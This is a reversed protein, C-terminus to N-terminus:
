HSIVMRQTSIFDRTEGDVTIKYIYVGTALGAASFEVTYSGATQTADVLVAIEQGLMDLVSLKVKGSEPMTYEIFTSTSFPNPRNTSLFYDTAAPETTIGFTKLTVPEIVGASPGAFESGYGIRFMSETAAIPGLAKVKLTLVVDNDALVMPKLNSWAISVNGASLNYLMGEASAVDVVDLLSSNYELNLTIAGFQDAKAIRIPLDFVQGTVVNMTGDKVLDIAPASKMSNPVNSRNADGENLTYIDFNGAASHMNPDFAWDGAPFYNVMGVARQKIWLADTSNQQGNNNVDMAKDVVADDLFSGPLQGIGKLEVALADTANAGYWPADYSATIGVDTECNVGSFTYYGMGDGEVENFSTTSQVPIGGNWLQIEVGNLPTNEDNHYYVFGDLECPGLTGTPYVKIPMEDYNCCGTCTDYVTLTIEGIGDNINYNTWLVEICETGQGSQIIGCHEATWQYLLCTQDFGPPCVNCYESVMGVEGFGPHDTSMDVINACPRHQVYFKWEETTVCQEPSTITLYLRATDCCEGFCIYVDDSGRWCEAECDWWMPATDLYSGSPGIFSWEYTYGPIPGDFCFCSWDISFNLCSEACVTMVQEDPNWCEVECAPCYPDVFGGCYNTPNNYGMLAVKEPVKKYEIYVTDYGICFGSANVWIWGYTGYHSGLCDDCICIQANPDTRDFDNYCYSYQINFDDGPCGDVPPVYNYFLWYSESKAPSCNNAVFPVANMTYCNGCISADDGAEPVPTEVFQVFVDVFSYCFYDKDPPKNIENWRVTYCGFLSVCLETNPDTDDAFTVEAGAPGSEFTWHSMDFYNPCDGLDTGFYHYKVIGAEALSICLSDCPAVLDTHEAIANPQELLDFLVSDSDTCNEAANWETWVFIYRGPAPICIHTEPDNIDRFVVDGPGCSKTWVGYMSFCYDFTADMDFCYPSFALDVCEHVDDGAEAVPQEFIFISVTDSAECHVEANGNYETFVFKYEGYPCPGCKEIVVGTVPETSNEIVVGCGPVQPQSILAWSYWNNYNVGFDGCFDSGVGTLTFAFENCLKQDPGASVDTPEEFIWVSVTDSDECVMHFVQEDDYYGNQQTVVFIYQGYKCADPETSCNTIFVLPDIIHIDSFLVECQDPQQYVSWTISYAADRECPLDIAGDLGFEFQECFALDDGADVEPQEDIFISVYASDVCGEFLGDDGIIGNYETWLFVYEGYPCEVSEPDIDVTTLTDDPDNIIVDDSPGEVFKWVGWTFYNTDAAGCFETPDAHLTFAFNNCIHQDPGADAVPQQFNWVTVCDTGTCVAVFQGADNYYGNSQTLCFIYKGYPCDCERGLLVSPELVNDPDIVVQCNGPSATKVWHYKVVTAQYCPADEEGFLSFAFTNCFIMDDGAEPEPTEFIYVTVTDTAACKTEAWLTDPEGNLGTVIKVNLEHWVFVYPGYPCDEPDCDTVNVITSDNLPDFVVQCENPQSLMEWWAHSWYNVGEEGCYQFPVAALSFSFNNCIHQDAGAESTPMEYFRLFMSDQDSCLGNVVQFEVQYEGYPCPCAQDVCVEAIEEDPDPLENFILDCRGGIQVWTYAYSPSQEYCGFLGTSAHIFACINDCVNVDPGADAVPQCYFNILISVTTDCEVFVGLLKTKVTATLRYLGCDTVTLSTDMTNQPGPGPVPWPEPPPVFGDECYPLPGQLTWIVTDSFPNNVHFEVTTSTGCVSDAHLTLTDPGTFYYETQVFADETVGPHGNIWRYGLKYTGPKDVIFRFPAQIWASDLFIVNGPGSTVEWRGLDPAPCCNPNPIPCTAIDTGAEAEGLAWGAYAPIFDPQLRTVKDTFCFSHSVIWYTCGNGSRDGGGKSQKIVKTGLEANQINLYAYYGPNLEITGISPNNMAEILQEDNAVKVSKGQQAYTTFGVLVMAIVLLIAKLPVLLCKHKLEYNTEM